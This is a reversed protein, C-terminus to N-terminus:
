VIYLEGISSDKVIRVLWWYSNSDDLLVMTDGKTANAQGEVTAVFTHLAYVFDFDIDETERLCEGGWGSDVFREDSYLSFDDSDDDRAIDLNQRTSTDSITAWSTSSGDSCVSSTESINGDELLPDDEPLLLHQIDALDPSDERGLLALNAVSQAFPHRASRPLTTSPQSREEDSGEESSFAAFDDDYSYGDDHEYFGEDQDGQDDQDDQNYQGTYEGYLHHHHHHHKCSLPSVDGSHSAGSRAFLPLHDPTLLFPSSDQSRTTSAPSAAHQPETNHPSLPLHTALHVFPSSEPTNLASRNFTGRPPTLSSTRPPWQTAAPPSPTQKPHYAGDDISPSSSMRDMMDDDSESQDGDEKEETNHDDDEAHTDNHQSHLQSDNFGDEQHAQNSDTTENWAERLSM